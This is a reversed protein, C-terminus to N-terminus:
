ASIGITLTRMVAGLSVANSFTLAASASALGTTAGFQVDGGFTLGGGYKGTLDRTANAAVVGGNLTLANAAGGGMANVGRVIVTGSNLTFGGQYTNGALALVGSGNKIYGATTSSTFSQAGFDLTVGSAIDIPIVVNGQNSITGNITGVTANATANIGAVVITAGNFTAVNGFNMVGGGGSTDFVQNYPGGPNTSWTAGGLSGSVGFYNQTQGFASGSLLLLAVVFTPRMM